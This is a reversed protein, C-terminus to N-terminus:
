CQTRSGDLLEFKACNSIYWPASPENMYIEWPWKRDFKMHFKVLFEHCLSIEYSIEYLIEDSIAHTEYLIAYPIEYWTM